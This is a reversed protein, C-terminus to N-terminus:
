AAGRSRAPANAAVHAKIQAFWGDLADANEDDVDVRPFLPRAGSALLWRDLHRGFGCFVDYDSDGLALLGYQLHALAAPQAMCERAFDEAMDPPDGDYTTSAIILAQRTSALTALKLDYFEILQTAIGAARLQEDTAQAYGEAAGAQTAYAVLVPERAESAAITAPARPRLLGDAGTTAPAPTLPRAFAEPQYMGM